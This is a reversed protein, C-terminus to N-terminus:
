RRPYRRLPEPQMWVEIPEGYTEIRVRVPKATITCSTLTLAILISLIVFKIKGM